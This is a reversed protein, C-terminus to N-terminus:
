LDVIIEMEKEENDIKRRVLFIVKSDVSYDRLMNFYDMMSQLNVHDM